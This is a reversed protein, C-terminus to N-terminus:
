PVDVSFPQAASWAGTGARVRWYYVGDTLPPTANVQVSLDIGTDTFLPTGVMFGNDYVEV